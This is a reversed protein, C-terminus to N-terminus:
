RAKATPPSLFAMVAALSTLAAFLGLGVLYSGTADRALALPLPGLAAAAMKATGEIGRIAGLHRPGYYNAWIVGSATQKGGVALGLLGGYAIAAPWFAPASALAGVAGVLLILLATMVLHGPWRDLALGTLPMSSANLVGYAVFVMGAQVALGQEALYSVQHFVLGTSVLAPTAMAVLTLWFRVTRMAQGATWSDGAPMPAGAPAPASAPRETPGGAADEPHNRVLLWVPPLLLMWVIIGLIPYATRWDFRDTLALILTPFVASSVALGLAVVGVARGRQRSFWNVPLIMAALSLAGPGLLRLLLFGVTLAIVDQVRSMGLCVAGFLFGFILLALRSGLRDIIRGLLFLAAAAGLTAVSYAGSIATRSLGLDFRIPDIFVAVAFTQGPGTVFLGLLAVGVVAWGYNFPLGDARRVIWEPQGLGRWGRSVSQQSKTM